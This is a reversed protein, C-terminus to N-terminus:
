CILAASSELETLSQQIEGEATGQLTRKRVCRKQNGVGIKEEKEAARSLLGVFLEM